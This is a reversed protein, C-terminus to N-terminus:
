KSFKNMKINNDFSYSITNKIIIMGNKLYPYSYFQLYHEDFHKNEKKILNLSCIDFPTKINHLVQRIVITM